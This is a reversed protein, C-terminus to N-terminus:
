GDRMQAIILSSRAEGVDERRWKSDYLEDAARDYDGVRLAAWFKSFTLFSPAGMNVIMEILVHQRTETLEEWDPYIRDLESVALDIDECLMQEATALTIGRDTLNRGIGITWKGKTDQYPLLRVGEHLRIQEILEERNMACDGPWTTFLFVTYFIKLM